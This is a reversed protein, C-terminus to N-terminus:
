RLFPNGAIMRLGDPPAIAVVHESDCTTAGETYNCARNM